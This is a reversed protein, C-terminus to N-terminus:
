REPKELTVPPSEPQSFLRVAGPNNTRQAIAPIDLAEGDQLLPGPAIPFVGLSVHTKLDFSPLVGAPKNKRNDVYRYTVKNSWAVLTYRQQPPIPYSEVQQILVGAPGPVLFIEELTGGPDRELSRSAEGRKPIKIEEPQRPQFQDVIQLILDDDSSNVFAVQAPPLAPNPIVQRSVLQPSYNAELLAYSVNWGRADFYASILRGMADVTFLTGSDPIIAMPAGLTYGPGISTSAWTGPLSFSWAHWVGDTGIASLLPGFYAHGIEVPSGPPLLVTPITTVGWVVGSKSWLQLQGAWNVASVYVEPIPGTTLIAAAINTGPTFGASVTAPVWGMGTLGYAVMVSANNVCVVVPITGDLLVALPAGPPFAGVAPEVMATTHTEINIDWLRGQTDVSFAHGHPGLRLYEVHAGPPFSVSTTVPNVISGDIISLMRGTPGIMLIGPWAGPTDYMALPSGPILPTTLLLARHRWQVGNGYFCRLKGDSGVHAVWADGGTGPLCAIGGPGFIPPAGPVPAGPLGGVRNASQLSKRWTTGDLNGTWLHGAGLVPWRLAVGATVSRFGLLEGDSTDFAPHRDYTFTSGTSDTVALRAGEIQVQSTLDPRGPVTLEYFEEALLVSSMLGLFAMCVFSRLSQM